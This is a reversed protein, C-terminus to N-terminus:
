PSPPSRASSLATSSSALRPIMRARRGIWPPSVTPPWGMGSLPGSPRYTTRPEHNKPRPEQHIVVWRSSGMRYAANSTARTEMAIPTAPRTDGSPTIDTRCCYTPVGAPRWAAAATRRAMPSTSIDQGGRSRAGGSEQAHQSRHHAQLSERRRNQPDLARSLDDVPLPPHGGREEPGAGRYSEGGSAEDCKGHQSAAM